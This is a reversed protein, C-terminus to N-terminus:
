PAACRSCTGVRMLKTSNPLPLPPPLLSHSHPLFDSPSRSHTRSLSLTLTLTLTHTHSLSAIVCPCYPAPDLGANGAVASFGQARKKKKMGEKCGECMLGRCVLGLCNLWCMM